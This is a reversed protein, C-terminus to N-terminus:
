GDILDHGIIAHRANVRAKCFAGLTPAEKILKPGTVGKDNTPNVPEPAVILINAVRDPLEHPSTHVDARHDVAKVNSPEVLSGM